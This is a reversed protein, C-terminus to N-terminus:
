YKEAKTPERAEPHWVPGRHSQDEDGEDDLVQKAPRSVEGPDVDGEELHVRQDPQDKHDAHARADEPLPILDPFPFEHGHSAVLRSLGILKM